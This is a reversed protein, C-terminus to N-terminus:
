QNKFCITHSEVRVLKVGASILLAISLMIFTNGMLLSPVPSTGVFSFFLPLLFPIHNLPLHIRFSCLFQFSFTLVYRLLIHLRIHMYTTSATLAGSKWTRPVPFTRNWGTEQCATPPADGDLDQMNTLRSATRFRYVIGQVISLPLLHMKRRPRRQWQCHCKLKETM